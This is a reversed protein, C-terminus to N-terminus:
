CGHALHIPLAQKFTFINNKFHDILVLSAIGYYKLWDLLPARRCLLSPISQKDDTDLVTEIYSLIVEDMKIGLERPSDAEVALDLDLCLGYWKGKGTQHGYCRLVLDNPSINAM